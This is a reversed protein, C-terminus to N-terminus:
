LAILWRPLLGALMIRTILRMLLSLTQCGVVLKHGLLSSEHASSVYIHQHPM